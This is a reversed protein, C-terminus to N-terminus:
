ARRATRRDAVNSSYPRLRRGAARRQAAAAASSSACGAPVPVGLATRMARAYVCEGGAHPMMAGLEAYASPAPWRYCDPWWWALAIVLEPTGVNCTMVRAKLYVGTGIVDGIVIAIAATLSWAASSRRPPHRPRCRSCINSGTSLTRMLKIHCRGQGMLAQGCDNRVISARMNRLRVNECGCGNRQGRLKKGACARALVGSRRVAAAAVTFSSDAAGSLLM